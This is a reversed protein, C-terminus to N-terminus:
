VITHHVNFHRAVANHSAGGMFLGLALEREVESFRAMKFRLDGGM